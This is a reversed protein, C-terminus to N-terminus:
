AVLIYKINQPVVAVWYVVLETEKTSQIESVREWSVSTQLAQYFAQIMSNLKAIEHLCSKSGVHLANRSSTVVHM